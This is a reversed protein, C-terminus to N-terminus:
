VMFYSARPGKMDFGLSFSSITTIIRNSQATEIQVFGRGHAVEFWGHHNNQDAPNNDESLQKMLSSHGAVNQAGESQM